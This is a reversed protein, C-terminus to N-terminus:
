LLTCLLVGLYLFTAFIFMKMGMMIIMEMIIIIIIIPPIIKISQSKVDWCVAKRALMTMTVMKMMIMMMIVLIM